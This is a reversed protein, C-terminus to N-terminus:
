KLAKRIAEGIRAAQDDEYQFTLWRYGRGDGATRPIIHFHVHEIAQGAVSGRNNLVNFGEAGVARMVAPALRRIALAAAAAEEDSMGMIDTAHAKPIVLVHGTTVPNIDVFAFVHGDEYVKASPLDGRVIRCFICDAM